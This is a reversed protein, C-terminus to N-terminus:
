RLMYGIIDNHSSGTHSQSVEEEVAVVRVINDHKPVAQLIKLEIAIYDKTMMRIEQNFVKVAYKDGKRQLM